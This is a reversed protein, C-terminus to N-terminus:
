EVSGERSVHHEQAQSVLRHFLVGLFPIPCLPEPLRDLQAVVHFAARTRSDEQILITHEPKRDRETEIRVSLLGSM